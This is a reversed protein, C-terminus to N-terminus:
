LMQVSSLWFCSLQVTCLAAAAWKGRIEEGLIVNLWVAWLETRWSHRYIVFVHVQSLTKIETVAMSRQSQSVPFVWYHIFTHVQYLWIDWFANQGFSFLPLPPPSRSFPEFCSQKQSVFYVKLINELSFTATYGESIQSCNEWSCFCINIRPSRSPQELM